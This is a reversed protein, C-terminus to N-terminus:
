LGETPTPPLRRISIRCRWANHDDRVLTWDASLNRILGLMAINDAAVLATFRHIGEQRARHALQRLLETGLGRGQWDDVITVAVEASRPDDPDRIFRAVGVGRAEARSVAALAEHDHHDLDTFYRLEARSLGSKTTLFRLRRSEAGLRSFGDLLVAADSPELPRILAESGDSLTVRQGAPQEGLRPRAIGRM